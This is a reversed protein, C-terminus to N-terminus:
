GDYRHSSFNVRSTSVRAGFIARIGLGYHGWWISTIWTRSNWRLSRCFRRWVGRTCHKVEGYVEKDCPSANQPTTRWASKNIGIRQTSARRHCAEEWNRSIRPRPHCCALYNASYLFNESRIILNCILAQFAYRLVLQRQLLQRLIRWFVKLSGFVPPGIVRVSAIRNELGWSVTVPAWFNEILRKYRYKARM